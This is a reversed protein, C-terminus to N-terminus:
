SCLEGLIELEEETDVFVDVISEYRPKAEAAIGVGVIFEEDGVQQYVFSM